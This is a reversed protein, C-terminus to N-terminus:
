RGNQLELQWGFVEAFYQYNQLISITKLENDIFFNLNAGIGTIERITYSQKEGLITYSGSSVSIQFDKM